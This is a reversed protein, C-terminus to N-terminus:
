MNYVSKRNKRGLNNDILITLSSQPVFLQYGVSTIEIKWAAELTCQFPYIYTRGFTCVFVHCQNSYMLCLRQSVFSNAATYIHPHALVYYAHNSFYLQKYHLSSTGPYLQCHMNHQVPPVSVYTQGQTQHKSYQHSWMCRAKRFADKKPYFQPHFIWPPISRELIAIFCVVLQFLEWPKYNGLM